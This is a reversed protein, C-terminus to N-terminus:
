QRLAALSFIMPYLREFYWLRSFYLGIPAPANCGGAQIASRLWALGKERAARAPALGRLAECAVATEEISGPIERAGGWSGDGNQAALLYAVARSSQRNATAPEAGSFMGEEHYALLVRATGFVPNEENPAQENGFWLPTWSGDDRQVRALYKWGRAAARDLAAAPRKDLRARWASFARLVHATIEPTSRDFPLKQWGKCFTPWGGDSNQLRLLWHIARTAALLSQAPEPLLNLALLAGATDDADPVSGSSNTWGWAGPACGTFPHVGRGQQELLWERTEAEGGALAWVSATTLWISLDRDIKWAGNEDQESCLFRVGQALSPHAREGAAALGMVVFSTLPTAELFGGSAPTIRTLKELASRKALAGAYRTFFGGRRQTFNALGVAILAPLAYSVVGLGLYQFVPRPFAALWFPLQPCARWPILDALALNMLIPASFTKDEGYRAIIASPGGHRSMYNECNKETRTRPCRARLHGAEGAMGIAPPVGAIGSAANQKNCNAAIAFAARVLWTTSINSRSSVTDGWGGDKNQAGALWALGRSIREAHASAGALSLASVATATALASPSLSGAWYPRGQRERLLAARLEECLFDKALGADNAM